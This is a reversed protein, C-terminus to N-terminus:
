TGGQGAADTVAGKQGMDVGNHPHECRAESARHSWVACPFVVAVATVVVGGGVGGAEPVLHGGVLVLLDVEPAALVAAAGNKRAELITVFGSTSKVRVGVPPRFM